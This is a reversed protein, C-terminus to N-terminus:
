TSEWGAWPAGPGLHYSHRQPDPGASDPAPFAAVGPHRAHGDGLSLTFSKLMASVLRDSDSVVQYYSGTPVVQYAENFIIQATRELDRILKLAQQSGIDRILLTLRVTKHDPSLFSGAQDAAEPLDLLALLYDLDDQNDPLILADGGSEARQLHQLLPLPSFVKAVSEQKLAAKAFREINQFDAVRRFPQGDRRALLLEMTNIGGFHRDVFASAQALEADDHLFGTLRTNNRVAPLAVAALLVLAAAATILTRPHGITLAASKELLRGLFSARRIFRREPVRFFSLGVPLLTLSVVLSCLVGVAGFLGFQRVAPISSVTLSLLGLATTLATFGCPVTLERIRARWASLRAAASAPLLLWGNYLHVANSVSLIMVVPPLLSSITNLALGCLAYLGMTWILSIATAALPLLVGSLHRFLLALMVALVVAVLPLVVEQDRAILLAVDHKQVAIGTLHLRARDRYEGMVGRVQAILRPLADSDEALRPQILLGASGHDGSILLHQYQPNDALASLVERAINRDALNAPLLPKVEAGYRGPALQKATTLSLVEAVGALGAIRTSIEAVLAIGPPSLLTEPTVSLFLSQDEGFTKRLLDHTRLQEPRQSTMSRPDGEVQLGPVASGLALTILALLVLVPWRGRTLMWDLLRDLLM